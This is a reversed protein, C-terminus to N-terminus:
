WKFKSGYKNRALNNAWRETYFKNHNYPDIIASGLSPIGVGFLYAPGIRQSQMYHGYEHMFLQRGVKTGYDATIISGLTYGGWHDAQTEILTAGDSHSISQINGIMNNVHGGVVGALQQPLEWTFKSVVQGFDGRGFSSWMQMSNDAYTSGRDWAGGLGEGSVLGTVFGVLFDDIIAFRGDPDIMNISNNHTYHYPTWSPTKDALPDVSIFRNQLKSVYFKPKFITYEISDETSTQKKEVDYYSESSYPKWNDWSNQAFVSTSIFALLIIFIKKM